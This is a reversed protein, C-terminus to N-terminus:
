LEQEYTQLISKTFLTYLDLETGALQTRQNEITKSDGRRAPGTQAELPSITKIKTATQRILPYLLKFDVKNEVCINEGLRYLHNAFNNVFVAALHLKKRQESDIEYVKKSISKALKLLILRDEELDAEICIPIKKFKLSDTKSFTQLPYFVGKRKHNILFDLGITGSTHVVLKNKLILKNALSKIGTDSIALVYIDANVLCSPDTTTPIKKNIQDLAFQTRSYVQLLKVKKSKHFAKILHSGLNGTGLLVVSIM